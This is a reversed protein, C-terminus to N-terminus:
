NNRRNARELAAQTKAMIQGQSQQFSNADPTSINFNVNVAGGGGGGEGARTVSVNEGDRARFAVLRNDVGNLSGVSTDAGVTFDGGQHFGFLNGIGGFIGGAAGDGGAGASAGLINALPATISDRIIMRNIDAIISDTLSKFDVKGTSVFKVLADEASQFANVLSNEVLSSMDTFQEQIRLLGRQVGGDFTTSAELSQLTLERLSNSYEEASIKGQDFLANLADQGQALNEQPARLDQLIDSQLQLASNEDIINRILGAETETLDRKLQDQFQLITSQAEREDSNLKLLSNERTLGDLLGDFKIAGLADAQDKLAENEAIINKILGTETETLKRKLQDQVQFIASQAEREDSNLKLLFNEQELSKFLDSFTAQESLAKADAREQEALAFFRDDSFDPKKSPKPVLSSFVDDVSLPSDNPDFKPAQPLIDLPVPTFNLKEDFRPLNIGALNNLADILNNASLTAADLFPTLFDGIEKRFIIIATVAAFVLGPIGGVLTLLGAGAIRLGVFSRGLAISSAAAAKQSASYTKLSATVTNQSIAVAKNSAIVRANATAFSATAANRSVTVAKQSAAVRANATAVAIGAKKVGLMTGTSALMSKRMNLNAVAAVRDAKALNLSATAASKKAINTNIIAVRDAKARALSTIATLKSANAAAVAAVGDAKAMNLSAIATLNKAKTAAILAVVSGSLTSIFKTLAVSSVVVIVKILAELSSALGRIAISLIDAAGSMADSQGVLRLFENRVTRIARSITKPIEFAKLASETAILAELFSETTLKGQEALIKLDAASDGGLQHAILRALLPAGEIISNLEQGAAKFNTALGQTLQLSAGAATAASTGSVAFGRSLLETVKVLDFSKKINDSVSNNLKSYTDVLGEFVDGNKQATKFLSDFAKNYGFTSNTVNKLRTDLTVFTDSIKVLKVLAAGGAFSLLLGQLKKVSSAAKDAGTSINAINRKVTRSGKESVVIDIRETTM